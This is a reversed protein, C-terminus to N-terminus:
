GDLFCYFVILSQISQCWRGHPLAVRDAAYKFGTIGEEIDANCAIKKVRGDKNAKLAM